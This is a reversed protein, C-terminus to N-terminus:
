LTAGSEGHEFRASRAATAAKSVATMWHWYNEQSILLSGKHPTVPALLGKEIPNGSGCPTDVDCPFCDVAFHDYGDWRIENNLHGVAGCRPCVVPPNCPDPDDLALYTRPDGSLLTASVRGHLDENRHISLNFADLKADQTAHEPKIEYWSVMGQPGTVRFDPLYHTGDPLVFGEPEYEWQLGLADFFM